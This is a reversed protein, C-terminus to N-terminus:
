RTRTSAAERPTDFGMPELAQPKLPDIIKLGAIEGYPLMVMRAGVTDPSSRQVVLMADSTLFGDFPVQEGFSTVMVGRRRVDAPWGRFCDRWAESSDM